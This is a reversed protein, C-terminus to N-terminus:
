GLPVFHPEIRAAGGRSNSIVNVSRESVVIRPSNLMFRRKTFRGQPSLSSLAFQSLRVKGQLKNVQTSRLYRQFGDTSETAVTLM